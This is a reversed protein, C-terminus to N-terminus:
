ALVAASAAVTTMAEDAVVLADDVDGIILTDIAGQGLAACVAGLWEAALGARIWADNNTRIAATDARRICHRRMAFSPASATPPLL